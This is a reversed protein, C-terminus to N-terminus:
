VSIKTGCPSSENTHHREGSECYFPSSENTHRREGSECYFIDIRKNSQRPQPLKNNFFQVNATQQEMNVMQKLLVTLSM